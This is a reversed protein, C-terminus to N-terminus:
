LSSPLGPELIMRKKSYDIIVRFNKLVYGGILRSGLGEHGAAAGYLHTLVFPGLQLKDVRGYYGRSPMGFGVGTMTPRATTSKAIIPHDVADQSGSDVLFMSEEPPNDNVQIIARVFPLNNGYENPFELPLISGPGDYHFVSPETFKVQENPYDLTVIFRKCFDTGFLGDYSQDSDNHNPFDILHLTHNKSTLGPLEFQVNDVVKVTVKGQGAGQVQKSGSPKLGLKAGTTMDLYNVASGTDVIFRLPESGNLRVNDFLLFNNVLEAKLSTELNGNTFHYNKTLSHGM